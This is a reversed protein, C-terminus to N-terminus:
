VLRVPENPRPQVLLIRGTTREGVLATGDPLLALGVPSNLHKAVVFPDSVGKGATGGSQPSGQGSGSSGHHNRGTPIPLIPQIRAGPGEIAPNNPSPRWDPPASGSNSTCGALLVAAVLVASVVATM